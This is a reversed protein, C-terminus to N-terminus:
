QQLRGRFDDGVRSSSFNEFIGTRQALCASPRALSGGLRDTVQLLHDGLNSRYASRGCAGVWVIM